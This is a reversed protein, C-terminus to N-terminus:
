LNKEESLIDPLLPVFDASRTTVLLMYDLKHASTDGSINLMNNIDFTESELVFSICVM